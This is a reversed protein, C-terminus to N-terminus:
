WSWSLWKVNINLVHRINHFCCRLMNFFVSILFWFWKLDWVIIWVIMPQESTWYWLVRILISSFPNMQVSGIVWWGERCRGAVRLKVLGVHNQVCSMLWVWSWHESFRGNAEQQELLSLSNLSKCNFLSQFNLMRSPIQTPTRRISYVSKRMYTSNWFGLTNRRSCENAMWMCFRSSKLIGIFSVELLLLCNELLMLEKGMELVSNEIDTLKVGIKTTIQMKSWRGNRVTKPKQGLGNLISTIQRILHIVFQTQISNTIHMLSHQGVYRNLADISDYFCAANMCCRDIRDRNESQAYLGLEKKIEKPLEKMASLQERMEAVCAFYVDALTSTLSSLWENM